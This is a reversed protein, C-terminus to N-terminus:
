NAILTYTLTVTTTTNNNVSLPNVTVRYGMLNDVPKKPVPATGVWNSLPLTGATPVFTAVTTTRNYTGGAAASEPTVWTSLQGSSTSPNVDASVSLNWGNASDTYVSASLADVLNVTGTIQNLNILPLAGASNYTCGPCVLAPTGTNLAPAYVGAGTPIQITLRADAVIRMTNSLSYLALTNVNAAVRPDPPTVNGTAVTSDFRFSSNIDYPSRAYFFVDLNQGVALNCGSLKLLGSTGPTGNVAQVLSNIGNASCKAGAAGAGYVYISAADLSWPFGTDFLQGSTNAWPIAISVDTITTSGNNHLEYVFGNGETYDSWSGVIPQSGLPVSQIPAVPPHSPAATYGGAFTFSTQATTNAVVLNPIQSGTAQVVAGGNAGVVTWNIPYTGVAPAAAYKFNIFLKGGPPLSNADTAAACPTSVQTAPVPATNVACLDILWQGPTATPNANFTAGNSATVSTIAPYNAGGAPPVTILLQSVYDPNPDLGTSANDFEYQWVANALTPVVAPTVNAFMLAPDLSFVGLETSDINQTGAIANTQVNTPGVNYPTGAYNATAAIQQFPFAAQLIPMNLVFTATKGVPLMAGAVTTALAFANPGLTNDATAGGTGNQNRIKWNATQNVGNITASGWTPVLVNPDVTAPMVLELTSLSAPAGNNVVILTVQYTGGSAAAHTGLRYMMQRYRPTGLQAASYAGVQWSYTAQTNSGVVGNGYVNLGNTALGTMTASVTSAAVGHLPTIQTQLVCATACNGTAVAVTMPIAITADPALAQGPVRPTLVVTRANPNTIDWTQGLSDIATTIGAQRGLTVFNGTDNNITILKISDGNWAGYLTGADNRLTTTVNTALNAANANVYAGAPNTWQFQGSYSVVRFSKSGVVTGAAVDYLQATYVNPAFPTQTAGFSTFNGTNIPFALKQAGTSTSAATFQFPLSFAQPKGFYPTGDTTTSSLVVGNGNSITIRYVRGSVVGSAQYTLGQVSQEQVLGAAGPTGLIGDTAFTDNLNVGTTAGNYPILPSWTVTSPNLSYQQTSILDNTTADYLQVTQTGAANNGNAPTAYQGTLQQVTPLIGTAGSVFCTGNGFNQSGAPIAFVCPLGNGSTNVFGFSYFHAPNLGKASVYVTSGSTYDSSATAFGPDSYTNFNLTGLVVSYALAEYANTATNQVAITWVGSYPVDTAGSRTPGIGTIPDPSATLPTQLSLQAYWPVQAGGGGTQMCRGQADTTFTPAYGPAVYNRTSVTYATGDPPFVLYRYTTSPTLNQCLWYVNAGYSLTQDDLYPVASTGTLVITGGSASKRWRAKHKLLDTMKPIPPRPGSYVSLRSQGATRMSAPLRALATAADMGGADNSSRRTSQGPRSSDGLPLPPPTPAGLTARPGGAARQTSQTSQALAAFGGAGLLAAVVIAVLALTRTLFPM